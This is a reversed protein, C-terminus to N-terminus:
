RTEADGATAGVQRTTDAANQAHIAVAALICVGLCRLLM